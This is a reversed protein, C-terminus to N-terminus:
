YNQDGGPRDHSAGRLHGCGPHSGRVFGPPIDQSPRPGRWCAHQCFGLLEPEQGDVLGTLWAVQGENSSFRSLSDPPIADHAAISSVCDRGTRSTVESRQQLILELVALSAFCSSPPTRVLVHRKHFPGM